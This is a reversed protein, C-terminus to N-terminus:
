DPRPSSDRAAAPGALHQLIRAVIDDPPLAAAIVLATGPAPEELAEFQSRLMTAKMYHDPRRQLRPLFTAFDGQLYIFRTSGGPAALRRRYAKKLASCALVVSEGRTACAALHARLADLWPTRDAASLPIGRGMKGINAPPHFDDADDFRWGGGLRAALKRGVTTKGSGAVGMLVLNM